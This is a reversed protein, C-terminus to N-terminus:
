NNSLINKQVFEALALLALPGGYDWRSVPRGDLNQTKLTIIKELIFTKDASEPQIMWVPALPNHAFTNRILRTIWAVNKIREDSHNFRNAVVDELAKDIQLVLLYTASHEFLMAALETEDKSLTLDKASRHHKGWSFEPYIIQLDSSSLHVGIAFKFQIIALSILSRHDEVGINLFNVKTM